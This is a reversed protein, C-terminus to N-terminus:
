ITCFTFEYEDHEYMNGQAIKKTKKKIQYVYWM